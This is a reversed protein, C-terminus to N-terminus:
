HEMFKGDPSSLYGQDFYIQAETQLDNMRETAALNPTLTPKPTSTPVATKTPVFTNTATPPLTATSTPVSQAITSCASFLFLLLTLIFSLSSFSYKRQM